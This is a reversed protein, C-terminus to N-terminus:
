LLITRRDGLNKIHVSETAMLLIVDVAIYKPRYKCDSADPFEERLKPEFELQKIEHLDSPERQQTTLKM